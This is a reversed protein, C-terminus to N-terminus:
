EEDPSPRAFPPRSPPRPRPPARSLARPGPPRRTRRRPRPPRRGDRGRDRSTGGTGHGEARSLEAGGVRRIVIEGSEVDASVLCNDAPWGHVNRLRWQFVEPRDVRGLVPNRSTSARMLVDGGANGPGAGPRGSGDDGGGGAAGGGARAGGGISPPPPDGCMWEWDKWAGTATKGRRRRVMLEDTKIDYEEILEAGDEFTTM